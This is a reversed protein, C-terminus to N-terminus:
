SIRGSMYVEDPSIAWDNEEHTGQQSSLPLGRRSSGQNVCETVMGGLCGIKRLNPPEMKNEWIVYAYQNALTDDVEARMTEYKIYDFLFRNELSLKILFFPLRKWALIDGKITESKMGLENDLDLIQAATPSEEIYSQLNRIVVTLQYLAEKTEYKQGILVKKFDRTGRGEREIYLKFGELFATIEKLRNRALEEASDEVECLKNIRFIEYTEKAASSGQAKSKDYNYNLFVKDVPCLNRDHPRGDGGMFAVDLQNYDDLDANRREYRSATCGM